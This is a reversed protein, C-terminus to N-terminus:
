FYVRYMLNPFFSFQKMYGVSGTENEDYFENIRGQTGTINNLDIFIEHTAKPKSFKYSASLIVMHLNEIKSDYAKEYDWYKNNAPDVALNGQTDRLLPIIKRGGGFFIKANISLNSIVGPRSMREPIM